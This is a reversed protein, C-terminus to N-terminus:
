DPEPGPCTSLPKSCPLSSQLAMFHQSIRLYSLLQHCNQLSTVLNSPLATGYSLPNTAPKDGRPGPNSGRTLDHPVQPPCLPMASPKCRTSRHRLRESWWISWMWWWRIMWPQYLPGIITPLLLPSLQVGAGCIFLFLTADELINRRTARTLDSTESSSLAEKMLTVLIPSSPVVSATVLM